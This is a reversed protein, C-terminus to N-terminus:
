EPKIPQPNLQTQRNGQLARIAATERDVGARSDLITFDIAFGRTEGPKLKPVRGGKREISRNAPFGTGPELGTVYGEEIATTNRWLTFYPLQEISYSMTVGKDGAANRLMVTTRNRADAFPLVGYVQEVFNPTPGVYESFQALSKAAHANFPRVEKAAAVFRAGKDLLPTSYNAHYILQFEQEYISHNKLSDEIRYSDAGPETSIETWLELKPGYFMREDVRGRIRIRHPAERDVVVEVESAPINGIKGHLTLDMEAKDGTNNIFEDKGPHGAWELGCRVMWENFGELWGLGGRSQLNIFQPHVVEKVPSDWGLRLDGMEVKLVNMGRTPVVTFQLRGNDVVIVDVGEQKGGHLTFKRVSWPAKGGLERHTVQWADLHINRAASTLTQRFPEDATLLSLTSILM